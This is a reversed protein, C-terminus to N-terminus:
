SIRRIALLTIDDFQEAEGIHMQVSEAIRGLLEAATSSPRALLPVLAAKTFFTGDAAGAETVGDTYGLLIDGAELHTQEIRFDIKPQIGVSPGPWIQIVRQCKLNM